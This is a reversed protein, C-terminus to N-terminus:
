PGRPGDKLAPAPRVRHQGAYDTRTQAEFVWDRVGHEGCEWITGDPAEVGELEEGCVGCRKM